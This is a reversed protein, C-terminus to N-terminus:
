APRQGAHAMRLLGEDFALQFLAAFRVTVSESVGQQDSSLDVTAKM